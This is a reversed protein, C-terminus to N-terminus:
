KFLIAVVTKDLLGNDTASSIIQRTTCFLLLYRRFPHSSKLSPEKENTDYNEFYYVTGTLTKATWKM